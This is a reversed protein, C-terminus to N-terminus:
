MCKICIKLYLQFVNRILSFNNSLKVYYNGVFIVILLYGMNDHVVCKDNMSLFCSM